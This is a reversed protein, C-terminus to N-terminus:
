QIVLGQFTGIIGTASPLATITYLGGGVGSNLYGSATAMCQVTTSATLHFPSYAPSSPTPTTGNTTCFMSSGPTSDTFTLTFPAYTGPAVSPAPTAATPTGGITYPGGGVNSLTYGSALAVAQVTQSVSVTLPGSYVTSSTTPTTGNTTYYITALPTADSISVTQSGSYTGPLPSFTPTATQPIGSVLPHPYTYPTYGLTWTNTSTCKFLEGQGGYNVGTGTGSLGSQNWTGQDTAWYGVGTTCTPPRNALTGHGSGSTGNFPSTTSTQATQNLTEPYFDRNPILRTTDTVTYNYYVSGIATDNFEYIPSLTQTLAAAPSPPTGSVYIGQGRGPQDACVFARQILITDGVFFGYTGETSFTDQLTIGNATNSQIEGWWGRTTDYVSYPAGTPIFQNTAWPSGSVTGTLNWGLYDPNSATLVTETYYVHATNGGAGNTDNTDYPSSGGCAGWYSATFVTRYANMNFIPGFDTGSATATILNNFNYGTGGSRYSVGATNCSGSVCTITNNYGEIQRIGQPRGDSELGHGSCLSFQANGNVINFRCVQRAGGIGGGFAGFETETMTETNYVNNNELFVANATGTSDPQAWSNDGNGGVGLYASHNSEALTCCSGTPMTNHDIVGFVNDTRILGSANTGAGSETWPTTLGFGINDIRMNPCTSTSCIGSINLPSYLNNGSTPEIDLTTIRMLPNTAQIGTVSIMPASTNAADIIITQLPSGAGYTSPASNPTGIGSLTFSVGSSVALSSTWTWTGAPIKVVDGNQVVHGPGNICSNVDAYNGTPAIYPSSSGCSGGSANFTATVTCNSAPMTGTYPTGSGGCGTVGATTSGSAPTVTCSYSAGATYAGACGTITGSGTGTTATSLTYTVSSNSVFTTVSDAGLSATFASGSVTINSQAALNHGSDTIYPTVSTASLGSLTFPQSVSGSNANVAVIAFSGTSPNKFATIQVNSQPQYTAGIMQWGPRVFLSFNGTVYFRKTPTFTQDMLQCDQCAGGDNIYGNEWYQYESVQGVSLFAQMNQALVLGATMSADFSGGNDATESLWLHKGTSLAPYGGSGPAVPNDPYGYGHGSYISVYPDCGSDALCTDFYSASNAYDFASAIMIKVSGLGNAAFASGIATTVADVGAGNMGCAGFGNSNASGSDNPEGQVDFYTVPLGNSNYLQVLSVLYAAYTAPSATLCTTGSQTGDGWNGSVKMFSPPSQNQLELVAGDAIALKASAIDPPLQPSTGSADIDDSRYVSLGIGTGPTPSFFTAVQGSTMSNWNFPSSAWSWPGGNEGGFGDITQYTTSGNIAATQAALSIHVCLLTIAFALKRMVSGGIRYQDIRRL